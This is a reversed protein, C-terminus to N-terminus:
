AMRFANIGATATTTTSAPHPPVALV